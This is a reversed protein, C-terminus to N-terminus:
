TGQGTLLLPELDPLDIFSSYTMSFAQISQAIRANEAFGHGPLNRANILCTTLHLATDAGSLPTLTFEVGAKYQPVLIGALRYKDQAAPHAAQVKVLRSHPKGPRPNVELYEDETLDPFLSAAGPKLHIPRTFGTCMWTTPQVLTLEDTLFLWGRERALHLALASKGSGSRAPVMWAQYGRVLCAAHFMLGPQSRDALHYCVREMLFVAATGADGHTEEPLDTCRVHYQGDSPDHSLIFTRHPEVPKSAAIAGFLVGSLQESDPDEAIVRVCSGGFCILRENM